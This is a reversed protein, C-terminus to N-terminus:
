SVYQRQSLLLNFILQSLNLNWVGIELRLWTSIENQIEKCINNACSLLKFNIKRWHLNKLFLCILSFTMQSFGAFAYRNILDIILLSLHYLISLVKRTFYALSCIAQSQFLPTNFHIFFVYYEWHLSIYIFGFKSKM